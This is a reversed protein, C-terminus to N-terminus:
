SRCRSCGKWLGPPVWCVLSFFFFPWAPRILPVSHEQRCFIPRSNLTTTIRRKYIFCPGQATCEARCRLRNSSHADTVRAQPMPTCHRRQSGRARETKGLSASIAGTIGTAWGIGHEELLGIRRRPVLGPSHKGARSQDCWIRAICRGDQGVRCQLRSQGSRGGIDGRGYPRNLAALTLNANGKAESMVVKISTNMRFRSVRTNSPDTM